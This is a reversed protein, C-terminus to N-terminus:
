TTSVALPDLNDDAKVIEVSQTKDKFYRGSNLEASLFSLEWDALEDIVYIFVKM